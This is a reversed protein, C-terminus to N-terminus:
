QEATVTIRDNSVEAFGGKIAIEKENDGTLACRVIGERLESIIPAHMPYVAFPGEAGPLVAFKVMGSFLKGKPSLVEIHM